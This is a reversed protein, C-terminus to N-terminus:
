GRPLKATRIRIADTPERRFWILTATSVKDRYVVWPSVDGSKGGIEYIQALRSPERYALEPLPVARVLSFIAVNSGIGLALTLAAVDSFGPSRPWRAVRM